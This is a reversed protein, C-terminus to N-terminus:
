VCSIDHTTTSFVTIVVDIYGLVVREHLKDRATSFEEVVLDESKAFVVTLKSITFDTVISVNKGNRIRFIGGSAEVFGNVYSLELKVTV